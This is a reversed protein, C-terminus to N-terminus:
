ASHLKDTIRSGDCKRARYVKRSDLWMLGLLSLLLVSDWVLGQKVPLSVETGICNNCNYAFPDGSDQGCICGSSM